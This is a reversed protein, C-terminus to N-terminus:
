SNCGNIVEVKSITGWPIVLSDTDGDSCVSNCLVMNRKNNKIFFGVSRVEISCLNEVDRKSQWTPNQIIDNWYVVLISFPEYKTVRM